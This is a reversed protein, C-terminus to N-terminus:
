SGCGCIGLPNIVKDCDPCVHVWRGDREEYRPVKTPAPARGMEVTTTVTPELIVHFVGPKDPAGHFTVENVKFPRPPSDMTVVVGAARLLQVVLEGPVEGPADATVAASGSM